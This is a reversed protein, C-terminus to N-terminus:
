AIINLDDLALNTTGSAGNPHTNTGSDNIAGVHDSGICINGTIINKDCNANAINIEYRDNDKCRNNSIVNEDADNDLQIGDYTTSNGSDNGYIVNGSVVSHKGGYQLIGDKVNNLVINDSIVSYDAGSSFIGQFGNGSSYNDTVVCYTGALYIGERFNDISKCLNINCNAAGIVGIAIGGCNEAWVDHITSNSCTDLVVGNNSTNGTGAGYVYLQSVYIGSKTDASIMSVNATTQIKTSKGAGILSVNNKNIRIVAVINYTGEKIYVVGGTSPLMDIGEQITEADGSGDLAVVVTAQGARIGRQMVGEDFDRNHQFISQQDDGLNLAM